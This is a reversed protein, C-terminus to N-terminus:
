IRYQLDVSMSDSLKWKPRYWDLILGVKYVQTKDLKEFIDRYLFVPVHYWNCTVNFDVVKM